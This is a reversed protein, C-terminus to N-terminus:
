LGFSKNKSSGVLPASSKEQLVMHDGIISPLRLIPQGWATTGLVLFVALFVLRKLANIKM